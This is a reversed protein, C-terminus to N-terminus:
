EQCPMVHTDALAARKSELVTMVWRAWSGKSFQSLVHEKFLGLVLGAWAPCGGVLNCSCRVHTVFSLVGM